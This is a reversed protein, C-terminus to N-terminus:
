AGDVADAATLVAVRAISHYAVGTDVDSQRWRAGASGRRETEGTDPNRAGDPARFAEGSEHPPCREIFCGPQCM